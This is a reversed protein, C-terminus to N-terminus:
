ETPTLLPTLEDIRTLMVQSRELQTRLVENYDSYEGTAFTRRAAHDPLFENLLIACWKLVFLPSLALIRGPLGPDDAFVRVCSDVFARRWEAPCRNAPHLTFDAILKAADDWGFHEFDWFLWTGDPRRVGNHWGFDSPSLVRGEPPCVADRGLMSELRESARKLEPMLKGVVFNRMAQRITATPDNEQGDIRTSILKELRSRIHGVVHDAQLAAESAEGEFKADMRSAFRLSAVFAVAQDIDSQRLTAPPGVEGEVFELLTVKSEKDLEIASPINKVGLSALVTLADFEIRQHDRGSSRPFYRKAACSTGDGATAKYVLSNRGGYLRQWAIVGKSWLREVAARTDDELASLTDAVTPVATTAISETM